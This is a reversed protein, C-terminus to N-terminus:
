DEVVIGSELTSGEMMGDEERGGFLSALMANKVLAYAYTHELNELELAKMEEQKKVEEPDVVLISMEGDAMTEDSGVFLPTDENVDSQQQSSMVPPSSLIHRPDPTSPLQANKLQRRMQQARKKRQFPTLPSKFDVHSTALLEAPTASKTKRTEKRKRKEPQQKASQRRKADKQLVRNLKAAGEFEKITAEDEALPSHVSQNSTRRAVGAKWITEGNGIDACSPCVYKEILDMEKKKIDVCRLHFWDDCGGDCGIMAGEDFGRCICYRQQNQELPQGDDSGDSAEEFPGQLHKIATDMAEQDTVKAM